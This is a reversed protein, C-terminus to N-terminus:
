TTEMGNVIEAILGVSEHPSMAVDRRLEEAAEVFARVDDEEWLFAAARHHELHVIPRAKTFEILEYPGALMPNYGRRTSSVVQVEVNPYEAMRLLHKLQDLMVDPPGIPRVLVESDIVAHFEVPNRTRTLIDRRGSRLAVRPGSGEGLIASAYDSTQLLGPMLLPGVSTIRSAAHEHDILTVLAKGIDPPGINLQGPGETARIAGLIRERDDEGIGLVDMIREYEDAALRRDGKEMEAIRSHSSIFAADALARLSLDAEVRREKLEAGVNRLAAPLRNEAM